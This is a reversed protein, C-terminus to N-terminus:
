RVWWGGWGGGVWGDWGLGGGGVTGVVWRGGGQSFRGIVLQKCRNRSATAMGWAM